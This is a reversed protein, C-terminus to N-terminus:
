PKLFRPNPKSTRSMLVITKEIKQEDTDRRRQIPVPTQTEAAIASTDGMRFAFSSSVAMPALIIANTPVTNAMVYGM